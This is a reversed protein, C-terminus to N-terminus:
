SALAEVRPFNTRAFEGHIDLAALDYAVAADEATEFVGLHQTRGGGIGITARFGDRFPSVGKFGTRSRRDVGRNRANEAHSCARLNLRTNNLGQGDRHDVEVGEGVGLIVRHMGLTGRGQSRPRHTVAYFTHGSSIAHWNGMALLSPADIADVIAVLGRSLPIEVIGASM